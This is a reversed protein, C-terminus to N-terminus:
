HPTSRGRIMKKQREVREEELEHTEVVEFTVIATVNRTRDQANYSVTEVQCIYRDVDLGFDGYHHEIDMMEGVRPVPGQAQRVLIEGDTTVIEVM